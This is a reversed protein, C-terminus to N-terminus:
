SEKMFPSTVISQGVGFVTLTNILLGFSGVDKKAIEENRDTEDDDVHM